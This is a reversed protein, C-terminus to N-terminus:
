GNPGGFGLTCSGNVPNTIRVTTASVAGTSDAKGQAAVCLGVALSKSTTSAPTSLATKANVTVTRSSSTSTGFSRAAIVIASGSVSTVTGTVFTGSRLRGAAGSPFDSPRAGSPFGSPRAGTPFGSPRAGGPQQGAGGCQGNVPATITVDTATFASDSSGSPATATVCDGTKIAALTTRVQHTFKTSATWTVAVQGTQQNQVQMTTGTIAAITGFTGPRNAFGNGNGGGGSRATSTGGGAAPSTTSTSAGSSGGCASLVLGAAVLLAAAGVVTRRNPVARSIM